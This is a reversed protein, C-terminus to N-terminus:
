AVDGKEKLNKCTCCPWEINRKNFFQCAECKNKFEEIDIGNIILAHKINDLPILRTYGEYDKISILPM